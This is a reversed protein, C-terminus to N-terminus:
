FPSMVQFLQRSTLHWPQSPLSPQSTSPSAPHPLPSKPPRGHPPPQPGRLQPRLFQLPRLMRLRLLSRVPRPTTLTRWTTSSLRCRTPEVFVLYVEPGSKPRGSGSHM